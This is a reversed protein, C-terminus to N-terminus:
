IKFFLSNGEFWGRLGDGCVRLKKEIIICFTIIMCNICPYGYLYYKNIYKICM